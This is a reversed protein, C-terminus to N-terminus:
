SSIGVLQIDADLIFTIDTNSKLQYKNYGAIQIWTASEWLSSDYYLIDTNDGEFRINDTDSMAQIGTGSITMQTNTGLHIREFQAVNSTLSALNLTDGSHGLTLVDTSDDNGGSLLGSLSALSSSVTFSDAGDGGSVTSGLASVAFSDDGDEGYVTSGSASVIFSDNGYGGYAENGSGSVAISDNGYMAFLRKNGTLDFTGAYGDGVYLTYSSFSEYSSINGATDTVRLGISGGEAVGASAITWATGLTTATSWTAGDDAAYELYEGSDLSANLSGTILSLSISTGLGYFSPLSSSSAYKSPGTTDITWDDSLTGGASLYSSDDYQKVIIRGATYTGDALTFTMTSGTVAEDAWSDGGTTSYKFRAATLGTVTLTSNNTLHDSGGAGSAYSTDTLSLVPTAPTPNSTTFQLLPTGLALTNGALDELYQESVKVTYTTATSLEAVHLTITHADDDYKIYDAGQEFVFDISDDVGRELSLGKFNNVYLDESFKVTVDLGFNNVGTEGDYPSSEGNATLATPAVTDITISTTSASDTYTNGAMDVARLGLAHVGDALENLPISIDAGSAGYDSAVVAHTGVVANNNGTDIIQLIDGAALGSTNAVNVTITPTDVNTINDTGSYGSDSAAALDVTENLMSALTKDITISLPTSSQTGTNGAADRARLVLSHAGESLAASPTVHITGGYAGLADSLITYTGVIANDNSTDLVDVYDGAALGSDALSFAITPTDDKTINDTYTGGASSNYSDCEDYLDPSKDALSGPVLTDYSFELQTSLSPGANGSPDSIGLANLTVSGSGSASATPTLTATWTTGGDASTFAGLSGGSVTFDGALPTDTVAESLTLTLTATQDSILTADSLSLTAAPPTTDGSYDFGLSSSANAPGSNGATDTVSGASLVIGGSATAALTGTWTINDTSSLGSLTGGSVTFDTTALGAVQENFVLTVTTTEGTTLSSDGLSASSLTPASQDLTYGQSYTTSTTAGNTVRAMLTGSASITQGSLTWSAGSTTADAWTDGGNLSVQVKENGALTASLTGTITQSTLNTIFDGADGSDNSMDISDVVSAPPANYTFNVSVSSDPGSNGAADTVSAAYLQVEGTGNSSPTLTATWTVGGDNSSLGGLAGSSKFDATTLGTVAASFTITVAATEGTVLVTDSLTITATPTATDVSFNSSSTAGSGTNGSADQVSTNDLTITNSTDEISTAPTFTGTWTIGDSSTLSSLTGNDVTFDAAALGTVADSFTITVTSTEGAKLATDSLAIAATPRVTAVTYNASSTADAGANGAMDTIATNDLTIVNTNDHVNASPTLTATWTLGADSPALASLVGNAVTVNAISLGTVVESFIFTVTTTEGATLTADAVNISNITPRVTDVAYNASGTGGAGANGAIDTLGAQNVTIANSFALTSASPTFTATWTIGGDVSSVASLTGGSVTIDDNSFNVVAETFTFTVLSTEGIGITSDALTVMVTPAAQDLTYAQVLPNSYTYGNTVRAKLTDGASITTAPISWNGATATAKTYTTGGDLSVEIYEDAALTGSYQGTVTQANSNTIFDSSSSGSDTMSASTVIASPQNPVTSYTFSTHTTSTPGSNGAVDAVGGALLTIQGVGNTVNITPTLTATWTKGNDSTAPNSLVGGTVAFDALDLGAVAENFTITVVGTEGAVLDADSLTLSEVTAAENDFTYAQRVATSHGGAANSVRAIVTSSGTLTGEVSWSDNAVTAVLWTGGNDLSVEIFDGDALAGTVKGGVGQLATKTILDSASGGTDYKFAFGSDIVAAPVPTSSTTFQLKSTDALGAFASGSEDLLVGRAMQVSYHKGASLNSDLSITVTDGSISVKSTDTIDVTRTDTAGILRTRLTGDRGIYTQTSGDSITILGIGALIGANFTLVLQAGASSSSNLHTASIPSLVTSAPM